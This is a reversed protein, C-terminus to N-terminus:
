SLLACCAAGARQGRFMAKAAQAQGDSGVLAASVESAVTDRRARLPRTEVSRAPSSSYGLKDGIELAM